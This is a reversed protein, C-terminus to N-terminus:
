QQRAWGPTKPGGGDVFTEAALRRAHDRVDPPWEETCSEFRGGNGAFLARLAEEYGPENGALITMFRHCSERARRLRVEGVTSRRAQEVLKRLTVSAGGPQENLWDWHRPLLTVERAVVGLKPRGPSTRHGPSERPETSASEAGADLRALVNDLSGRFDLDIPMSTAADLIVVVANRDKDLASKAERAVQPLSGMAACQQGVFAICDRDGTLRDDISATM